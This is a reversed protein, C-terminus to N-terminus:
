LIRHYIKNEKAFNIEFIYLLYITTEWPEM